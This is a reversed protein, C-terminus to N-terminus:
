SLQRMILLPTLKIVDAGRLGKKHNLMLPIILLLWWNTSIQIMLVGM